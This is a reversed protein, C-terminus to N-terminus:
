DLSRDVYKCARMTLRKGSYTAMQGYDSEKLYSIAESGLDSKQPIRSFESSPQTPASGPLHIPRSGSSQM